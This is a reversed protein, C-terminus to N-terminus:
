HKRFLEFLVLSLNVSSHVRHLPEFGLLIERYNWDIDLFYGIIAM